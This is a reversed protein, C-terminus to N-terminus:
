RRTSTGQSQGVARQPLTHGATTKWIRSRSVNAERKSPRAAALANFLKESSAHCANDGTYAQWRRITTDLYVPDLELGRCYRGVREAAILSTGSGLFADLVIDGRASCDLIADAVLRVPKVTPHLALLNGEESATRPSPYTWVNTRDRGYKGLLINNRHSSHGYRFVFILEHRSRYLAGMGTHNKVWVCVNKLETYVSQGAALLEGLHRWDIFIFHLSGDASHHASLSCAQTLFATFQSEDMEGSGMAFDRHRIAGLGSVNGQIPVNYPPDTFVMAAREGQMLTTYSAPDLTSGCYVRHNGLIFLDGPRSVPPGAAHAAILDAPDDHQDNDSNLSEIRLDIEATEFGITELNFDLKLASLEKLQEALLRDDWTSNETLRNDALMFARAQVESLHELAITPVETWGLQQCAMVRGHGAIVKGNGDILVPVNFGFSQISEAIQRIQRASHHRPNKPDLRLEKISSNLVVIKHDSRAVAGIYQRTKM